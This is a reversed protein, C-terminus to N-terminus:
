YGLTMRRRAAEGYRIFYRGAASGDIVVDHSNITWTDVRGPIQGENEPDVGLSFARDYGRPIRRPPGVHVLNQNEPEQASEFCGNM